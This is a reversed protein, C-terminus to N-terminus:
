PNDKQIICWGTYNNYFQLRVWREDRGLTSLFDCLGHRVSMTGVDDLIIIGGRATREWAVQLTKLTGSATHVADVHVLDYASPGLDVVDRMLDAKHLTAQVRFGFYDLNAAAIELSAEKESENDIGEYIAKPWGLLMACASYGCYVGMELIARPKYYAAIGAYDAYQTESGWDNDGYLNKHEPLGIERIPVPKRESRGFLSM